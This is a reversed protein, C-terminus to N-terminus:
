HGYLVFSSSRFDLSKPKPEGWSKVLWAAKESGWSEWRQVDSTIVVPTNLVSPLMLSVIPWPQCLGHCWLLMRSAGSWEKSVPNHPIDQCPSAPCCKLISLAHSTVLQYLPIEANQCGTCGNWLVGAAYGQTINEWMGASSFLCPQWASLTNFSSDCSM